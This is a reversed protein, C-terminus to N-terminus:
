CRHKRIITKFRLNFGRSFETLCKYTLRESNRKDIEEKSDTSCLVEITEGAVRATKDGAAKFAPFLRDFISHFATGLLADGINKFM